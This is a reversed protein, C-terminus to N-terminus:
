GKPKPAAEGPPAGGAAEKPPPSGQSGHKGPREELLFLAALLIIGVVISSDALNFVPWPGVDIFDVVHGLRLRDVLNGVAGGLLLALSLRVLRGPGPHTHYIYLLVGV